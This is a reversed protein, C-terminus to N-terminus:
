KFGGHPVTALLGLIKRREAVGAHICHGYTIWDDSSDGFDVRDSRLNLPGVLNGREFPQQETRLKQRAGRFRDFYTRTDDDSPFRHGVESLLYLPLKSRSRNAKKPNSTKVRPHSNSSLQATPM